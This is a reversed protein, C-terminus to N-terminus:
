HITQGMLLKAEILRGEDVVNFPILGNQEGELGVVFKWRLNSIFLVAQSLSSLKLTCCYEHLYVAALINNRLTGTVTTKYSIVIHIWPSPFSFRGLWLAM